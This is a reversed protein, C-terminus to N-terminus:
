VAEFWTKATEVLKRRKFKEWRLCADDEHYLVNRFKWVASVGTLAKELKAKLPGADERETFDVMWLYLDQSPLNPILDLHGSRSLWDYVSDHDFEHVRVISGSKQSLYAFSLEAGVEMHSAIQEVLSRQKGDM